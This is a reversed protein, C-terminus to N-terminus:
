KNQEVHEHILNHIFTRVAKFRLILLSGAAAGITTGLGVLVAPALNRVVQTPNAVVFMATAAATIGIVVTSLTATVWRFITKM